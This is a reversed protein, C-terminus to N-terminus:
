PLLAGGKAGDHLCTAVFALLGQHDPDLRLGQWATQCAHDPQALERHCIAINLYLDPDQDYLSQAQRYAFLARSIRGQRHYADGLGHYAQVLDPRWRIANEYANEAGAPDDLALLTDGLHLFAWYDTHDLHVAQHFHGAAEPLQDQAVYLLGWGTHVMASNPFLTAAHQYADDSLALYRSADHQGWAMYLEGYGTWLRYDQPILRRAVHLEAEAARFLRERESAPVHPQRAAQLYLWSLHLRYDPQRPWLATARSGNALSVPLPSPEGARDVIANATLVIASSALVTSLLVLALIRQFWFPGLAGQEAIAPLQSSESGHDLTTPTTCEERQPMAVIWPAVLAGLYLWHLTSTATVPFSFQTEVLHASLAALIAMIIRRTSADLTRTAHRVAALVVALLLSVYAVLGAIGTSALTDLILNHARDVVVARGQSYVLEAPAYQTFVLGFSDLGHGLVPRTAILKLSAPWIIARAGLSGTLGPILPLAVVGALLGCGGLVLGFIALSQRKEIWLFLLGLVAAGAVAGLWAAQSWTVILCISQLGLAVLYAVKPGLNAAQWALLLTVPMVMVLYAGLFNSRGLSGIAASGEVHWALPDLHLWQAIGYLAIPISAWVISALLRLVQRPRRLYRAVLFFLALYSLQTLLGQMRDSSGQASVLRNTSFLTSLWLALLYGGAALSWAPLATLRLRPKHNQRDLLSACGMIAVLSWLIAAKPLEFANRGWPAISLPVVVAVLNWGVEIVRQPLSPANSM